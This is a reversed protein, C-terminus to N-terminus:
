SSVCEVDRDPRLSVCLMNQRSVSFSCEVPLLWIVHIAISCYLTEFLTSWICYCLTHMHAFFNLCVRIYNWKIESLWPCRITTLTLFTTITKREKFCKSTNPWSLLCLLSVGAGSHVTAQPTESFIHQHDFVDSILFVVVSAIHSCLAAKDFGPMTQSGKGSQSTFWQM